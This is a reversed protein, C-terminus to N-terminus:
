REVETTETVKSEKGLPSRFIEVQKAIEVVSPQKIKKDQFYDMPLPDVEPKYFPNAVKEVFSAKLTMTHTFPLSKEADNTRNEIPTSFMLIEYGAKRATKTNPHFIVFMGHSPLFLLHSVGYKPQIEQGKPKTDKIEKYILSNIDFSEKNKTGGIKLVAHWRSDVQLVNITAGFDIDSAFYHGQQGKPPKGDESKCPGSGPHLLILHAQFTDKGAEEYALALDASPLAIDNTM